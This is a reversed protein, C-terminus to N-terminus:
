RAPAGLALKRIQLSAKGGAVAAARLTDEVGELTRALSQAANADNQLAESERLVDEELKSIEVFLRARLQDAPMGFPPTTVWQSVIDIVAPVPEGLAPEREAERRAEDVKRLAHTLSQGMALPSVTEAADALTGLVGIKRGLQKARTQADRMFGATGGRLGAIVRATDETEQGSAGRSGLTLLLAAVICAIRSM